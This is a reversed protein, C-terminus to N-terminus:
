SLALREENWENRPGPSCSPNLIKSRTCRSSPNGTTVSTWEGSSAVAAPATHSMIWIGANKDRWVSRRKAAPCVLAATFTFFPCNMAGQSMFCTTSLSRWAPCSVDEEGIPAGGKAVVVQDAIHAADGDHLAEAKRDTEIRRVYPAAALLSLPLEVPPCLSNMGVKPSPPRPPQTCDARKM